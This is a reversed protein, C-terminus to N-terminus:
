SKGQTHLIMEHQNIDLIVAIVEEILGMNLVMYKGPRSRVKSPIEGM